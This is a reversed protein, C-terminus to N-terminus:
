ALGLLSKVLPVYNGDRTIIRNVKGEAFLKQARWEYRLAVSPEPERSPNRSRIVAECESTERPACRLGNLVVDKLIEYNGDFVQMKVALEEESLPILTQEKIWEVPARQMAYEEGEETNKQYVLPVEFVPGGIGVAAMVLPLTIDHVPNYFEVADCLIQDPSMSKMLSELLTAISAFFKHDRGLIAEYFSQETHNVFLARDSLGLRELGVKTQRVREEGGGDTLFILRPRLRQLLGYVAVEHNPHSFVAVTNAGRDRFQM